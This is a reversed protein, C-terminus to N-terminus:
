EGVFTTLMPLGVPNMVDQSFPFFEPCIVVKDIFQLQVFVLVMNTATTRPVFTM